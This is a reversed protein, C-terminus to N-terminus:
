GTSRRSRAAARTRLAVPGSSTLARCCPEPLAPLERASARPVQPRGSGAAACSAAARRRTSAMPARERLRKGVRRSSSRAASFLPLSSPVAMPVSMRVATWKRASNFCASSRARSTTDALTFSSPGASGEAAASAAAPAVERFAVFFALTVAASRAFFALCSLLLPPRFFLLHLRGSRRETAPPSLRARGSINFLPLLKKPSWARVRQNQLPPLATTLPIALDQWPALWQRYRKHM